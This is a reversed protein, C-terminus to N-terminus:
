IISIAKKYSPHTERKKELRFMGERLIWNVDVDIVGIEINGEIYKRGRRERKRGGRQVKKGM